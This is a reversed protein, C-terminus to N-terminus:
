RPVGVFPARSLEGQEIDYALGEVVRNIQTAPYHFIVGGAANIAKAAKIDVEGEGTAVDVAKTVARQTAGVVRIGAPGSYSQHDGFLGAMERVGVLNSTGLSALEKLMKEWRDDTDEDSTFTEKFLVTLVTPGIYLLIFDSILHGIAAPSLPALRYRRVSEASANYLTNFYTGFLTFLQVAGPARYLASRDILNGGGQSDLVAQEALAVAQTYISDQAVKDKAKDYDLEQLAKARAGLYTPIDVLMQMKSMLWFFSRSVHGNFVGPTTLEKSLDYVERNMTTGRNAMMSSEEHVARVANEMKIADGLFDRLGVAVWKGGIRQVSQTIGIVQMAATTVSWGLGAISAGTRVYNFAREATTAAPISGAAVDELAKKFQAHVEIGYGKLLTAEVRSSALLRNTDLLAEYHTQHHIVENISEFIVGFDLRVPRNVGEVRSLTHGHATHERASGGSMAYKVAEDVPTSKAFTKQRSDYKLRFYGGRYVGHRTTVTTAEVKGPTIGDVRRMMASTEPWYSELLDWVGQVFDWDTKTLPKLIAAVQEETWGYGKRLAEKNGANGQNLAVLMRGARSLSMGIEPIYEQRFTGFAPVFPVRSVTAALSDTTTFVPKFLASLRKYAEVQMRSEKAAASNLPAVFARWWAGGDKFGDLERVLSSVKRQSALFSQVFEKPIDQPLRSEISVGKRRKGAQASEVLGEIIENLQRNDSSKILKNKLNALHMLHKLAAHLEEIETPTMARFPKRYAEDLMGPPLTVAVGLTKQSEAWEVLTAKRRAAKDTQKRLEFRELLANVQEQYGNDPTVSGDENVINGALGLREQAPTDQLRLGYKRAAEAKRIVRQAEQYLETNYLELRTQNAAEAWDRKAAADTARASAGRAARLFASAHIDKLPITAVRQKALAKIAKAEDRGRSQKIAGRGPRQANNVAELVPKVKKQLGALIDLELELVRSKDPGNLQEVALANLQADTLPDGFQEQLKADVEQKVAVALPQLTAIARVMEDGSGYGLSRAVDDPDVISDNIAVKQRVMMAVINGTPANADDVQPYYDKLVELSLPSARLAELAAYDRTAKVKTAVEETLQARAARRSKTDEGLITSAVKKALKAKATTTVKERLQTYADFEQQSLGAAEATAFKGVAAETAQAAALQVDSAILRDFVRRVEDTLTVDLQAMDRYIRKLWTSFRVFLPALDETPANGERFYAEAARAFTEHQAVTLANLDDAGVFAAITTADQKLEERRVQDVQINAGMRQQLVAWRTDDSADRLMEVYLHASEHLFTSLDKTKGLTITAVREPTISIEGRAEQKFRLTGDESVVQTASAELGKKTHRLVSVETGPQLNPATAGDYLEVLYASKLSPAVVGKYLTVIGGVTTLKPASAGENVAINRGVTELSPATAGKYLVVDGGVSKLLPTISGSLLHADNRVTQLSELNALMSVHLAGQVSTVLPASAGGEAMLDGNVTVLLPASAGPGLHVAGGVRTLLPVVVDKRLTAYGGVSTLRPATAGEHLTLNKGVATLLPVSSGALLAAYGDVQTLLPLSGNDILKLDGQIYALRPASSVQILNYGEYRSVPLRKLVADTLAGDTLKSVSLTGDPLQTADVELALDADSLAAWRARERIVTQAATLTAKARPSLKFTSNGLLTNVDEFYEVPLTGDNAPGQMEAVDNDEMRIAARTIGKDQLVYFDGKPLYSKELGQSTCWTSCSLAKMLETNKTFDKHSKATKPIKIWRRGESTELVQKANLSETRIVTVARQYLVEFSTNGPNNQITDYVLALAARDLELPLTPRLPDLAGLLGSWVFHSFFADDAYAPNDVTLYAQWDNLAAKRGWFIQGQLDAVKDPADTGYDAFFQQVLPPAHHAAAVNLVLDDVYDVLNVRSVAEINDGSYLADLSGAVFDRLAPLADKRLPLITSWDVLAENRQIWHEATGTAGIRRGKQSQELNLSGGTRETRAAEIKRRLTEVTSSSATTAGELPSPEVGISEPSVIPISGISSKRPQGYSLVDAQMAQWRLSDAVENAVAAQSLPAVDAPADAEELQAVDVPVNPGQIDVGYASLLASPEVGARGAISSLVAGFQEALAAAEDPAYGVGQLREEIVSAVSGEQDDLMAQVQADMAKEADATERRNMADPTLRMEDNFFVRHDTTAITTAYKSMPMTLTSGGAVAMDYEAMDPMVAEAAKRPDVGQATWYDVWAQADVHVAEFPGGEATTQIVDEAVAKDAASKGMGDGLSDLVSAAERAQKIDRFQTYVKSGGGLLGFTLSSGVFADQAQSLASEFDDETLGTSDFEQDGAAKAVERIGAGTYSQVFEEAGETAGIAVAAGVGRAVSATKSRALAGAVKEYGLRKAAEKTIAKGALQKVGPFLKAIVASGSVEILGNAAGAYEAAKVRSAFPLQAGNIDTVEGLELFAMAQELRKTYQYAAVTGGSVAGAAAGPIAGVGVVAAGAVGGVVAGGLVGKVVEPLPAVGQRVTNAMTGAVYDATSGGDKQVRQAYALDGRLKDMRAREVPSQKGTSMYSNVIDALEEQVAVSAWGAKASNFTQEIRGFVDVDAAISAYAYPSKELWKAVRPSQARFKEADFTSQSTENELEAINESIADEPLGTLQQLKYVRSAMAQPINVAEDAASKLQVSEQDAETFFEDVTPM